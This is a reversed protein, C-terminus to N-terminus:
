LRLRQLLFPADLLLITIVNVLSAAISLGITELKGLGLVRKSLMFLILVYAVFGASILVAAPALSAPLNQLNPKLVPAVKLLLAALGALLLPVALSMLAQYAVARWYGAPKGRLRVFLKTFLGGYLATWVFIVGTLCIQRPASLAKSEGAPDPQPILCCLKYAWTFGVPADPGAPRAGAAQGRRAPVKIVDDPTDEIRMIEAKPFVVRGGEVEIVVDTDTQETVTGVLTQGNRFYIIDARATGAAGAIAAMLVLGALRTKM